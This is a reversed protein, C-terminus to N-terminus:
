DRNFLVTLDALFKEADKTVQGPTLRWAWNNESSGPSNMKTSEDLNLVDQMPLIAAKAVSSYAMRAMAVYFNEENVSASIYNEIRAKMDDDVAQRFWGRITNNDHTGTYVIFNPTFNHPIHDSQPMNEDFAFQLVKMGPLAFKDRLRFVAPSVEGLDEAIFPLGGLAAEIKKFFDEDPGLKWEGKVATKEGGPVEWYDAFARFHDLRVIDFLEINKALREIWWQYGQQKLAGWNFVPMGWLQGDDSFADPPVGAIGTIKGNEDVCFFEPNSWVDASDYSVYFPMDGLLQINLGNCYKRLSKWQKDFIYQQWKVFRIHEAETKELEDLAPQDRKRYEDPWEYWPQTEHKAKLVMYVAFDHLWETNKECFAEFHKEEESDQLENFKNFAEQLLENKIKAAQDYDAEGTDPLHYEQLKERDLLGDEALLEPSVLLPNGARSSLASYPSNAQAAEVPNLPLMQWLKQNSRGLFDAFAYSEPGMDGIGFPSALSSIHLLVGAMRENDLKTGKLVAFPLERFIDSMNIKGQFELKEESFVNDWELSLNDPMVILTDKWDIDFFSKQQERCIVAAHLPVIVIYYDKKQKRAFALIHDKYAGRMKLPIYDGKTFLLPNERRLKFLHQTLWLKIQANNRDDWLKELLRDADYDDLEKLWQERKAFDVPRRNDPDVLSFDWLECGQYVDPIGPCTFKLVLQVLSNIIGYDAIEANFATFNDFFPHEKNLLQDAFKMVSSEYAENPESWNTETKAERLAKQLYEGLRQQFNDEDEGQMPYAGALTQYILYEDNATPGAQDKKLDANLATWEKVKAIWEEGIDTLVNLRARVDEGRKTDQTSTANLALPWDKQRQRMSQHFDKISMGFRDPFDGVDNHGIFRNYTYMLTDEGGKAMLPGSFQMLRQYFELAKAQYAEDGGATKKLISEELFAITETLDEHHERVDEFIAQIELTETESLPMNNGYYRYVPCHILFEGITKKLNDKGIREITDQDALQLEVFLQYLNELEGGMHNYLIDSKKNLLNSRVSEKNGTLESYYDSFVQEAQSNTLLNNLTALFEYGTTGEIPWSAPLDEHKELIKEAVIYTDEGTLARIQELYAAPDYLGDIHDIRIGQFIGEDLLTKIYRHYHEFVNEDQINLCILGNVTFFRRFSIQAETHRWYCLRYEQQAALAKLKEKDGSIQELRATIYNKVMDNKMLSALQLLLENWRESFVKPDEVEHIENLQSIFQGITQPGEEEGANLITIYSKLNVPFSTGEYTLVLRGDVFETKLKGDEIVEDLEKGLFPVMMKGRFLKSNGPMDFYTAYVSQKGKELVDMLWPNTFHFAMHNPVIDQLWKIELKKLSSSLERLQDETGIEPDIVSPNVGDYGHTSGPTSELIPSAYITGVGLKQFYPIWKEFDTFSFAKHFQIRYTATLNNM